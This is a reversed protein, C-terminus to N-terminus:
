SITGWKIYYSVIYFPASSGPCVTCSRMINVSDVTYCGSSKKVKAHLRFLFFITYLLEFESLKESFINLMVSALHDIYIEDRYLWGM